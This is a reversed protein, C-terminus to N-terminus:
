HDACGLRRRARCIAHLGPTADARDMRGRHPRSGLGHGDTEGLVRLRADFPCGFPVRRKGGHATPETLPGVVNLMEVVSGPWGHTIILPLADRHPSRAHIFHIDLGDIETIFQPLANLRAELRGFDYETGWYRVLEQITALQVGQSQDDVLEKEPWRTSAIRRRLDLLEQEPVDVHFPRIEAAIEVASSM